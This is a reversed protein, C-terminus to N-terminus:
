ATGNIDYRQAYIGNESGDQGLSEWSVVYGGDTLATISTNYQTGLLYTNVRFEEPSNHIDGDAFRFTEIGSNTDTGEDGNGM